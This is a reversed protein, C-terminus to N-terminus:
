SSPGDAKMQALFDAVQEDTEAQDGARYRDRSAALPLVVVSSAGFQDATIDVVWVGRHPTTLELWYHGQWATGDFYGAVGDGGGRIVPQACSFRELAQQLLVCAYFCSGATNRTSLAHQLMDLYVGRVGHVVELLQADEDLPAPGDHPAVNLDSTM